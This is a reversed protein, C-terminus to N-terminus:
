CTGQGVSAARVDALSTCGALAMCVELEERLLRLMHAVGLAGAVSLAYMQLRGVLVADAGRAISQFVDRGSRIGSDLLLPFERGVARRVAPLVDISAPAGDLGRGGHNSVIAGAFGRDRVAVADQPHLIGKVWVPLPTLDRLRELQGWSPTGSAASGFTGAPGISTPAPAAPQARLNGAVAASPMRFGLKLARQGPVQLAADVTIVIASYGAREARRLLQANVAPDPQLYLQFWRPATGAASAIQELTCTSLTSAVLCTGTVAAGRATEREAGPHALVQHAVPALLVPHALSAGPLEVRTHAASVDRLVRPCVTLSEFARLNLAATSGAASGDCIYEYCPEHLFGRAAAEYDRAMAIQGPIRTLAPALYPTDM